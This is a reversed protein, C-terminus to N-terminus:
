GCVVGAATTAGFGLGAGLGLGGDGGAGIWGSRHNCRATGGFNRCGANGSPFASNGTQGSNWADDHGTVGRACHACNFGYRCGAQFGGAGGGLVSHSPNGAGAAIRADMWPGFDSWFRHWVGGTAHPNNVATLWNAGLGANLPVIASFGEAAALVDAQCCPAAAEALAALLDAQGETELAEMFSEYAVEAVTAGGKVLSAEAIGTGQEGAPQALTGPLVLALVLVVILAFMGGMGWRQKVSMKSM